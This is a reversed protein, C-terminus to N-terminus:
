YKILLLPWDTVAPTRHLPQHFIIFIMMLPCQFAENIFPSSIQLWRSSVKTTSTSYNLGVWKHQDLKRSYNLSVERLEKEQCKTLYKNCIHQIYNICFILHSPGAPGDNRVFLELLFEYRHNKISINFIHYKCSHCVVYIQTNKTYALIFNSFRVLGSTQLINIIQSSLHHNSTSKNSVDQRTWGLMLQWSAICSFWIDM